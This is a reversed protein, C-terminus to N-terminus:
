RAPRATSRSSPSTPSSATPPPRPSATTTTPRRSTRRRCFATEHLGARARAPAGGPELARRGRPPPALRVGRRAVRRAERSSSRRPLAGSSPRPSRGCSPPSRRRPSTSAGARGRRLLAVLLQGLRGDLREHVHGDRDARRRRRARRRARRRRGPRLGHPPGPGAADDRDARHHRRAPLRHRDRGRREGVEPPAEAREEATQALTIYGMNSISPEVVCAVGIGVLRGEERAGRRSPAPARRLAGLELADDLCATTTAPTTSGARRRGTPSSTRRRDPQPAAARGPRARAPARRDGDDARARPLAAARRLRPQARDPLPEDARRPQPVAVNQVRYAGSLSGHMRYLTAPEPARVYAGVDEVVDYRLALLEGDAAFGAEVAPRGRRRAPAGPSTSSGTRSGACPSASSARPSAWSRRRLRLGDVQDRLQRGLRAAHDAAAELGPPRARGRRRLPAHVPGPLEGLRHADRRGDDWDAVVGYCEVPTCSWRPFPSRRRSSSTPARSPRTRTATPSRATRSSRARREPRAGPELPEYDVEILELADEAVYRDKAVVVALPEGAYRAIEVRPRTTPGRGTWASRSRAPCPPSTPAPSSASSAPFSSRPASPDLRAIRAHAFSRASSRPTARTRSRTSTTWSAARRRPAADRGRPPAAGPRGMDGDRDRDGRRIVVRYRYDACARGGCRGRRAGPPPGGRGRRARPPGRGSRPAATGRGRSRARRCAGRLEALARGLRHEGLALRGLLDAAITAASSSPPAPLTRTVRASSAARAATTATAGSASSSSRARATQTARPTGSTRPQTVMTEAPVDSPGTRCSARM